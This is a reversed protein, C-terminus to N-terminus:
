FHAAVSFLVQELRAEKLEVVLAVLFHVALVLQSLLLKEQLSWCIM